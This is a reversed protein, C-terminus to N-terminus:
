VPQVMYMVMFCICLCLISRINSMLVDIEEEDHVQFNVKVMYYTFFPFAISLVLAEVAHHLEIIQKSSTAPKIANYKEIKKLLLESKSAINGSAISRSVLLQLSSSTAPM